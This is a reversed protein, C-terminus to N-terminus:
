IMWKLAYVTSLRLSRLFHCARRTRAELRCPSCCTPSVIAKNLRAPLEDRERGLDSFIAHLLQPADPDDWAIDPFSSHSKKTRQGSDILAGELKGELQALEGDYFESVLRLIHRFKLESKLYANTAIEDVVERVNQLIRTLANVSIRVRAEV